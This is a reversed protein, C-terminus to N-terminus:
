QGEPPPTKRAQHRHCQAKRNEGAKQLKRLNEDYKHDMEVSKVNRMSSPPFLLHRKPAATRVRGAGIKAFALTRAPPYIHLSDLLKKASSPIFPQLLIGCIRLSERAWVLLHIVTRPSTESAWPQLRTFEKNLLTLVDVISQVAESMEHQQMHFAVKGRLIYLADKLETSVISEEPLLSPAMSSVAPQESLEAGVVEDKAGHSIGQTKQALSEIYHKAYDVEEPLRRIDRDYSFYQLDEAVDDYEPSGPVPLKTANGRTMLIARHLPIDHFEEPIKSFIKKSQMRLLLNGVLSRLEQEHKSLQGTSWDVDEKFRGGVRALYWRPIDVGYEKLVDIPNVVNGVSKSMKARDVTWHAHTLLTRPLPIDLAMLFAPFYIAHFRLIDKGIVQLDVPWGSERMDKKDVWPYGVATLYSTLADLWVYITQSDDDPVRIGWTLRSSPRSISLDPPVAPDDSNLVAMVADRQRPPYIANPNATLHERLRGKLESLKFKYNEEETWEVVNGTEISVKVRKGTKLDVHSRIQSDTYFAEDSISYWGAHNGKYIYGRRCLERWLAQVGIRHSNATTRVFKTHSIDAEEALYNFAVGLRDCLEGPTLGQEAAAKQIKMGHEDVGTIFRVPRFPMTLKAFRAYVDAIVLSYLHGIHPVANPYFIPTTIYYPKLVNVSQPSKLVAQLPYDYDRHPRELGSPTADITTSELKTTELHAEVAARDPLRLPADRDSRGGSYSRPWSRNAPLRTSNLANSNFRSSSATAYRRAVIHM